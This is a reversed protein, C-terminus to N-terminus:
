VVLLIIKPCPYLVSSPLISKWNHELGMYEVARLCAAKVCAAWAAKLSKCKLQLTPIKCVADREGDRANSHKHGEVPVLQILTGWISPWSGDRHSLSWSDSLTVMLERSWSQLQEKLAWSSFGLWVMVMPWLLWKPSCFPHEGKELVWHFSLKNRGYLSNGQLPLLPPPASFRAYLSPQHAAPEPKVLPHYIIVANPVFGFM